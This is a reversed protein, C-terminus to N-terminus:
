RRPTRLAGLFRFPDPLRTCIERLDRTLRGFADLADLQRDLFRWTAEGDPSTDSLWYLLTPGYVAALSLRKTYFSFDASRDNAARWIADVTDALVRAAKPGNTPMLQFAAGRAVADRYPALLEIRVRVLAAIREALPKSALDLRAAEDAMRRDILGSFCALMDMAGGPFLRPIEGPDLGIDQAGREMSLHTWGDFAVHGIAALTLREREASFAPDPPRRDEGM